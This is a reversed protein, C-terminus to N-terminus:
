RTILLVNSLTKKKWDTETEREFFSEGYIYVYDRHFNRQKCKLIPERKYGM